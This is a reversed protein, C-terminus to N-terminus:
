ADTLATGMGAPAPDAPNLDQCNATEEGWFAPDAVPGDAPRPLRHTWGRWHPTQSPDESLSTSASPPDGGTRPRSSLSSTSAPSILDMGALAPDARWVEGTSGALAPDARPCRVADRHDGTWGRSHPTQAIDDSTPPYFTPTWGRWRPTQRGFQKLSIERKPDMGAPAPDAAGADGAAGGGATWGRQRPTQEEPIIIRM